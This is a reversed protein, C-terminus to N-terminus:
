RAANKYLSARPDDKATELAFSQLAEKAAKSLGHPVQIEIRALLDGRSDKVTIGHGKVRLTTGGQTGAPVKVKVRSGDLTPVDVTAGLVAEDFSVPVTVRLNKGDISFVPHKAVHVTLILDGAPGGNPSPRGKGRLRIRQGDAVGAPLRAQVQRNEITLSIQSGHAADRFPVEAAAALDAGKVPGRQYSGGGFLNSLIDEFGGGGSRAGGQGFVGGFVDEFGADGRGPAQFRAGGSGMARVADYQQRQEPDSLIAYAEGVDKFRSEAAADGPNRDPHLDKALKRYAKKIDAASADKAVGLVQYFDKTFWDQSTM